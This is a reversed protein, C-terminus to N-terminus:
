SLFHQDSLISSRHRNGVASIQYLGLQTVFQLCALYNMSHRLSLILSLSLSLPLISFSLSHSLSLSLSLSLSFYLSLYLSLSLSLCLSLSLSLSLSVSLSVSLSLPSLSSFFPSPSLFPFPHFISITESEELKMCGKREERHSPKRQTINRTKGLQSTAACTISGPCSGSRQM